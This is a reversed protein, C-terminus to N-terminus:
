KKIIDQVLDTDVACVGCLGQTIIHTPRLAVLQEGDVAYLGRGAEVAACTCSPICLILSLQFLSCSPCSPPIYCPLPTPLHLLCCSIHGSGQRRM